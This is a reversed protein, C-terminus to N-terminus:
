PGGEIRVIKDALEALDLDSRNSLLIVTFRDDPYRVIFAQFGQWSGPHEQRRHGHDKKLFWGFGYDSETGDNLRMPRLADELTARRVLRDSTLAQDWLYLDGVTTNIAGSGALFDLPHGADAFFTGGRLTYGRARDPVSVDPRDRLRTGKMGLPEFIRRRLLDAFPQGAIRELVLALMEYGADSYEFRDGPRFVPDGQRALLALADGNSVWGNPGGARALADYYDPLGSTHTLLHRVTMQEGFRSLEPLIRIVPTDYDLRGEEHLMMALMGTFQKAVSAIDFATRRGIPIRREVDALGLSASYVVAGDRIVIAAAGPADGTQLTALLAEMRSAADRACALLLASTACVVPVVALRGILSATCRRRWM